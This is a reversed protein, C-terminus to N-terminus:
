SSATEDEAEDAYEGTPGSNRVALFAADLESSTLRFANRYHYPEPKQPILDQDFLGPEQKFLASNGHKLVNAILRLRDIGGEDVKFSASAKAYVDDQKYHTVNLHFCAQQEWFHYLILAFAERVAKISQEAELATDGLHDAYRRTDDDDTDFDAEERLQRWSAESGDREAEFAKISQCYAREISNVGLMYGYRIWNMSGM